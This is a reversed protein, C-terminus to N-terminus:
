VDFFVLDLYNLEKGLVQFVSEIEQLEDAEKEVDDRVSMNLVQVEGYPKNIEKPLNRKLCMLFLYDKFIDRIEHTIYEM